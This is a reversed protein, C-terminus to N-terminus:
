VTAHVCSATFIFLSVCILLIINFLPFLGVYTVLLLKLSSVNRLEVALVVSTIIMQTNIWCLCTDLLKTGRPLQPYLHRHTCYDAKVCAAWTLFGVFHGFHLGHWWLSFGFTRPLPFGATFFGHHRELSPCVGVCSDVGRHHRLRWRLGLRRVWGRERPERQDELSLLVPDESSVRSDLDMPHCPPRCLALALARVRQTEHRRRPLAEAAGANVGTDAGPVGCRTPQTPLPPGTGGHLVRIPQLLVPPWGAAHHLQPHLRHLPSAKPSSTNLPLTVKGEQVDVSLSTIRQTLLMLSSVALFLRLTFSMNCRDNILHRLTIWVYYYLLINFCLQAEFKIM